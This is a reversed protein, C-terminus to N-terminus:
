PSLTLALTWARGVSPFRRVSEWRADLMNTIGLALQVPAGNWTFPRSWALDLLGVPTLLTARSEPAATFSRAGVGRAAISWTASGVRQQVTLGGTVDPVYPTPLTLGGAELMARTAGGWLLVTTRETMLQASAEGGVTRERGVNSPSWTFNGPFWIIADDVIRTFLAANLAVRGRGARARMGAEADFVTREPRLARAGLRQPAAFYLDYLTPARFAQGVRLYPAIDGAHEVGLWPSGIPAAGGIADVRLGATGRWMGVRAGREVSAWGRWRTTEAFGTARLRDAGGGLRWSLEGARLSAELDPSLTRADTDLTPALRNTYRMTLSRVGAALTWNGGGVGGRLMLRDTLARDDDSARVNMAGVLGRESRSALLTFWGSPSKASAFVAYRREDNNVRREVSDSGVTGDTNVFPFDNRAERWAAGARLRVSGLRLTGAGEVGRAGFAGSVVSLVPADSSTLAITGGIAGGGAAASAGPAVRVTALAALPIDSADAMGSAPDNLSVGDLTVLVQESRAGRLQWTSEGRASRAGIGPMGAVLASLTAQAGARADRVSRVVAARAVEDALAETRVGPLVRAQRATDQSPMVLMAALVLVNTALM